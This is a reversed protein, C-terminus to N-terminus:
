NLRVTQGNITADGGSDVRWEQAETKHYGGVKMRQNGKVNMTQNGKVNFTQDGEITYTQNGKVLFHQNGANGKRSGKFAIRGQPDPTISNPTMNPDGRIYDPIDSKSNGVIVQQNGIITQNMDGMVTMNYDGSTNLFIENTKRDIIMQTGNSIRLVIRLPYNILAEPLMETENPRATTEFIGEYISGTPFKVTVKGGRQPVCVVGFLAGMGQGKLGELQQTIPRYWPLDEDRIDDMMGMIRARVQGIRMPDNNDVVIAEYDMLPDLGKKKLGNLPTM